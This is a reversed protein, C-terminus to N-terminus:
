HEEPLYVQNILLSQEKQTLVAKLYHITSNIFCRNKNSNNLVARTLPNRLPQLQATSTSVTPKVEVSSSRQSHTTTATSYGTDSSLESYISSPVPSAMRPESFKVGSLSEIGKGKATKKASRAKALQDSIKMRTEPPMDDFTDSGLHESAAHSPTYDCIDWLREASLPHKPFLKNLEEARKDFDQQYNKGSKKKQPTTSKKSPTKPKKITGGVPAISDDFAKSSPRKGKPLPPPTPLSKLWDPVKHPVPSPLGSM